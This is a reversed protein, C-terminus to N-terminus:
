RTVGDGGGRVGLFHRRGVLLDDEHEGCSGVTSPAAFAYAYVRAEKFFTRM